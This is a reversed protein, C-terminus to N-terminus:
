RLLTVAGHDKVTEGTTYTLELYYLFVQANLARGNFTGDWGNTINHSEFVKEGWRDYITFTLKDIDYGKVYLVDNKGDGNPTFASPVVYNARRPQSMLVTDSMVKCGCNLTVQVSYVGSDTVTYTQGTAGTIPVSDLYWQYANYTSTSLAFNNKTIVPPGELQDMFVITNMWFADEMNNVGQGASIAGVSTFLDVDPLILDLTNCDLVLAPEGDQGKALIIADPPTVDFYGEASGGQIASTVNGFPGNFITTNNGVTTPILFNPEQQRLAIDFGWKANLVAPDFADISASGGIIVKGGRKSWAYLSDIEATTFQQLGGDNKDFAGFFFLQNQPLQTVQTLSGTTAFGSVVNISKPYIGTAGFNAANLLKALANDMYSGNLTYGGNGAPERANNISNITITQCFSGPCLFNILLFLITLRYITKTMAYKM